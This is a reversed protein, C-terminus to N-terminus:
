GDTSDDKVTKTKSKAKTSLSEVEGTLVSLREKLENFEEIKVFNKNCTCEHHATTKQTSQARETYDLIRMSPIGQANVSKIFITPQDRDWLVVANNPAVPYSTAEVEGLVFIMDNVPQSTQNAYQGGLPQQAALPQYPTKYQSLADPVAGSPQFYNMQPYAAGYYGNYSM